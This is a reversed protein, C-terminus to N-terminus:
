CREAKHRQSAYSRKRRNLKVAMTTVTATVIRGREAKRKDVSLHIVDPAEVEKLKLPM